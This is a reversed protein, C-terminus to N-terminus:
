RYNQSEELVPLCLVHRAGHAVFGHVAPLPPQLVHFGLFLTISVSNDGDGGERHESSSRSGNQDQEEKGECISVDWSSGSIAM